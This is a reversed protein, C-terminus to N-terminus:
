ATTVDLVLSNCHSFLLYSLNELAHPIPWSLPLGIQGLDGRKHLRLVLAVYAGGLFLSVLHAATKM